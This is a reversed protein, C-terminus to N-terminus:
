ARVRVNLSVCQCESTSTGVSALQYVSLRVCQYGSTRVRVNLYMSVSVSVKSVSTGVSAKQCESARVVQRELESM